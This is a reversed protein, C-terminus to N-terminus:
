IKCLDPLNDTILMFIRPLNGRSHRDRRKAAIRAMLKDPFDQSFRQQKWSVPPVSEMRLPREFFIKRDTLSNVAEKWSPFFRRHSLGAYLRSRQVDCSFKLKQVCIGGKFGILPEKQGANNM